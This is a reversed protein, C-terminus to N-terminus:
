FDMEVVVTEFVELELNMKLVDRLNKEDEALLIRM